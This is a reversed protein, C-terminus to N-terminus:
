KRRGKKGVCHAQLWRALDGQPVKGKALDLFVLVADTEAAKVEWGNLELFTFSAVLATRKNGDVFPHNRAIGFAYSAALEFVSTEGYASLNLPRALASELAGGDRLGALGGFEAIQIAHFAEVDRRDLWIM